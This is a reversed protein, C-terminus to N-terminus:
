AVTLLRAAGRQLTEDRKAFCFRLYGPNYRDHYFVSLPISAVKHQITLEDAYEVDNKRSLQSYDLLQFYTGACRLAKFKTPEVLKRFLDRKAAFERAVKEFLERNEVIKAFAKQTPHHCCYTQFQHVKRFERTLPGRAICYGMRWGTTHYTKGLSSLIFSRDRLSAHHHVSEHRLGDFVIHEYVEDSLVLTATGDLLGGLTSLDAATLVSGTPNHPTNIMVLRTKKSLKTRFEDWDIHFDPEKLRLPVPIGGALKIAPIYSDYAPEFLIVEDGPHVVAQIASFIAPTAGASVTIETQPSFETGYIAQTKRSLAELLDVTGPMPAYQNYGEDLAVKVSQLLFPDIDAEPFGQSLNVAGHQNALGTMKAFITLGIDPLKSSLEM